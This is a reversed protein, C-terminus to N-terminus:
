DVRFIPMTNEINMALYTPREFYRYAIILFQLYFSFM